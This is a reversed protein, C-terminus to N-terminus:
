GLIGLGSEREENEGYNAWFCLSIQVYLLWNPYNSNYVSRQLNLLRFNKFDWLFDRQNLSMVSRWWVVGDQRDAMTQDRSVMVVLRRRARADTGGQM